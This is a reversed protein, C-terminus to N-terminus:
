RLRALAAAALQRTKEIREKEDKIGGVSVRIFTDGRLVYLAGAVRTGSWFAEDGVGRIRRAASETEREQPADQRASERAESKREPGDEGQDHFRDRWFVRPTIITGGSTTSGAVAISVARPTGTNLYCQRVLLGGTEQAAPQREKVAVGLVARVAADTLLACPDAPKAASATVVHTQAFLALILVLM